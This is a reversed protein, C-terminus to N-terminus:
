FYYALALGLATQGGAEDIQVGASIGQLTATVRDYQIVNHTLDVGLSFHRSFFYDFGGGVPVGSGDIRVEATNDNLTLAYGGVGGKIYPRFARGPSLRYHLLIQFTAFTADIAPDSTNHNAGGADLELSFVPNFSYGARLLVGGGDDKVFFENQSSDNTHLTSGIFSVGLYPGRDRGESQAGVTQVGAIVGIAALAAAASIRGPLATHPPGNYRTADRRDRTGSPPRITRLMRPAFLM